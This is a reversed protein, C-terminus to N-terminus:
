PCAGSTSPTPRRVQRQGEQARQAARLKEKRIRDQVMPDKTEKLQDDFGKNVSEGLKTLVADPSMGWEFGKTLSAIGLSATLKPNSDVMECVNETKKAKGKGTTKKKCVEKVEPRKKEDEKAVASDM